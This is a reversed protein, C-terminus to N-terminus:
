PAFQSMIPVLAVRYRKDVLFSKVAMGNRGREQQPSIALTQKRVCTYTYVIVFRYLCALCYYFTLHTSLTADHSVQM